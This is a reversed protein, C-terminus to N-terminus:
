LILTNRVTQAMMLLNAEPTGPPIDCGSSVIWRQGAVEHLLQGMKAQLEAPKGLFLDASPDLNGRLACRGRAINLAVKAPVQYDVDCFDVGSAIIDELIPQINGCIHLGVAEWGAAKLGEVLQKHRPQVLSRYMTPSIFSPSCTAEGLVLGHAGSKVLWRGLTLALESTYDLLAEVAQPTEILAILLEQVGCLQSALLLPGRLTALVYAEEGSEQVMRQVAEFYLPMRGGISADRQKLNDLGALDPLLIDLLVPNGDRPQQVQAGLAQAEATVGLSMQVGDLGLRRWGNITVEAMAAASTLYDGLPVGALTALGSHLIPLLPPRDVPQGRLVAQVRERGNM